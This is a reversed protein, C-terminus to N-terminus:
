IQAYHTEAGSAPGRYITYSTIPSGGNDPAEWTLNVAGTMPDVKASDLKPNGPAAQAPPDFAAFM